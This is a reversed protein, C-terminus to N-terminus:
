KKIKRIVRKILNIKFNVRELSESIILKEIDDSEHEVLFMAALHIIIDPEESWIIKSLSKVSYVDQDLNRNVEFIAHGKNRLFCCLESGIYGSTGTIIFKM